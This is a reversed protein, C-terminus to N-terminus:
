GPSGFRGVMKIIEQQALALGFVAAAPDRSSRVVTEVRKM